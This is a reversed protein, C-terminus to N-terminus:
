RISKFERGDFHMSGDTISYDFVEGDTPAAKDGYIRVRGGPLMTYYEIHGDRIVEGNDKYEVIRGGDNWRGVLTTNFPARHMACSPLMLACLLIASTLILKIKM